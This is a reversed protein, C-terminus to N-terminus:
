KEQVTYERLMRNLTPRSIQLADAFQGKNITGDIYQKYCEKFSDNIPIKKRGKYIGKKKALAIGEMQRELYIRHEFRQISKLMSVMIKGAPTGTNFKEQNSILTVEKQHLREVLELLDNVNRAFRSFDHIYVIDGRKVFDMMAKLQPRERSRASIQDVFWREIQNQKLAEKQKQEDQEMISVRLYGVRM